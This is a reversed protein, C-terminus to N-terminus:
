EVYGLAQLSERILTDDTKETPFSARNEPLTLAGFHDKSKMLWHLLETRLFDATKNDRDHLLINTSEYPDNRVDYFRESKLRSRMDDITLSDGPQIKIICSYKWNKWLIAYSDLFEIMIKRDELKKKTGDSNRDPSLLPFLSLGDMDSLTKDIGCVDLLTPRIDILNVPLNVVKHVMGPKYIILPVRLLQEEVGGHYFFKGHEGLFEGHDATILWLTHKWLASEKLSFLLEGVSSDVYSIEGAYLARGHAVDQPTLGIENSFIKSKTDWNKILLEEYPGKYDADYLKDFPPPPTYRFHPDFYHIWVFFPQESRNIWQLAKRTTEQARQEWRKYRGELQDDYHEFGQQLNSLYSKLPFGSIFAATRYGQSQLQEALTEIASPLPDSNQHVDINMPYSGTMIVSHAPGTSSIPTTAESFLIGESAFYQLAPTQVSFQKKVGYHQDQYGAIHDRRTTDLTILIINDTRDRYIQQDEGELRLLNLAITIDEADSSKTLPCSFTLESNVLSKSSLPVTFEQWGEPGALDKEKLTFISHTESPGRGSLIRFLIMEEDILNKKRWGLRFSCTVANRIDQSSLTLRSQFTFIIARHYQGDIEVSQLEPKVAQGDYLYHIAPLDTISPRPSSKQLFLEGVDYVLSTRHM